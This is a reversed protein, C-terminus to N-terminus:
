DELRLSGSQFENLMCLTGKPITLEVVIVADRVANFTVIGKVLYVPMLFFNHKKTSSTLAFPVNSQSEFKMVRARDLFTKDNVAVSISDLVQSSIQLLFKRVYKDLTM